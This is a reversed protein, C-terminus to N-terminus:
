FKLSNDSCQTVCVRMCLSLPPSFRHPNSFMLCVWCSPM